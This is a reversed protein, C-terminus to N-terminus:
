TDRDVLAARGSMTDPPPPAPAAGLAVGAGTTIAALKDTQTRNLIVDVLTTTNPFLLDPDDTPPASPDFAIFRSKVYRV